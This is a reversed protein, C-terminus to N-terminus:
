TTGVEGVIWDFHSSVRAYVDPYGQACPIVWSAIGVVYDGVVLSGGSDGFCIGQGIENLSCITNVFYEESYDTHRADCDDTTITKTALTQLHNPM